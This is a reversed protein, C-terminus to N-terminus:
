DQFVVKVGGLIAEILKAQNKAQRIIWKETETKDDYDLSLKNVKEVFETDSIDYSWKSRVPKIFDLGVKDYIKQLEDFSKITDLEKPHYTWNGTESTKSTEALVQELNKEM